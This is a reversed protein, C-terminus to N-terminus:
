GPINMVQGAVLARISHHSHQAGIESMVADVEGPKIHTIYVDAPALMRALEVRLLAPCLHRSIRALELEEDGFATEIVALYAMAGVVVFVLLPIWIM